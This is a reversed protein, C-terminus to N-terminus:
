IIRVSCSISLVVSLVLILTEFAPIGCVEFPITGKVGTLGAILYCRSMCWSCTMSADIIISESSIVFDLSVVITVESSFASRWM